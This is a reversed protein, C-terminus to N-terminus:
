TSMPRRGRRRVVRLLLLVLAAVAAFAILWPLVVGIVVVAAGVAVTLGAFGAAFGSVFTAPAPHAVVGPVRITVALTAFAVQDTLDKQEALLQELDTQRKTLSSEIRVLDTTTTSRALLTQLRGISTRLGTLRVAYDTARSTVDTSRVTVDVVTGQRELAALTAPFATSPIRVTLDASGGRDEPRRDETQVRGGAGTVISSVASAVDVPHAASLQLDGTVTVSRDVAARAADGGKSPTAAQAVSGGSGGGAGSSATAATCSTLLVASAAGLLVVATLRATARGHGASRASERPILPATFPDM